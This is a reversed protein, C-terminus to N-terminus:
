GHIISFVAHFYFFKGGRKSILMGKRVGDGVKEAIGYPLINFACIKTYKRHIGHKELFNQGKNL